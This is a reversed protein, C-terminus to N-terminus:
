ARSYSQWRILLPRSAQLPDCLAGKPMNKSRQTRSKSVGLVNDMLSIASCTKGHGLLRHCLVLYDEAIRHLTHEKAMAPISAHGTVM